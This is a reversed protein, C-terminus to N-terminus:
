ILRLSFSKAGPMIQQVNNRDGYDCFSIGFGIEVRSKPGLMAMQGRPEMLTGTDGM